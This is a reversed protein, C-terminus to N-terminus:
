ELTTLSDLFSTIFGSIMSRDPLSAMAGYMAAMGEPEKPNNKTEEVSAKLDELFKDVVKEHAPTVMMHLSSPLQQRDLSWGRKTMEEGISYIDLTDSTYSFVSMNPKGLVHLEQINNIGEIMKNTTNMVKKALELYGEEGLYNMIAWAAAIAGGPRSGTMTPSGYLGGPWDTYSFYQYQRLEANKYLVVSTGRPGYGYKHIDASISTVGDVNFDFDPIDYGLKKVFPLLFGGLCADVHMLIGNDKALSALENIPDIVGQPYAPASGVILITNENIANKTAELNARFDDGVPIIVTKLSLYSASKNFAPHITNPLIIEPNTIHPKEARAWERATKLAMLISETGGSTMNGVVYDDGNLLGKSMAVVESEFKKLSPFSLPSLGNTSAYMTYADSILKTSEDGIFYVLSSNRGERWNVDSDQFSQMQKLLDSSSQKKEPFKMVTM